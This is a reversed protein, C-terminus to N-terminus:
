FRNDPISNYFRLHDYVDAVILGSDTSLEKFSTSQRYLKYQLRPMEQYIYPGRANQEPFVFSRAGINYL